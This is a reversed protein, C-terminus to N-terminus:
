IININIKREPQFLSVLIEEPVMGLYLNIHTEKEFLNQARSDQYFSSTLFRKLFM